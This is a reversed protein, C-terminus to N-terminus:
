WVKQINELISLNFAVMGGFPFPAPLFDFKLLPPALGGGGFFVLPSPSAGGPSAPWSSVSAAMAACAASLASKSAHFTAWLVEEAAAAAFAEEGMTPEEEPEEARSFRVGEAPNSKDSSEPSPNPLSCGLCSHCWPVDPAVSQSKANGCETSVGSYKAMM